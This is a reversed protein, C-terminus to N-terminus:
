RWLWVFFAENYSSIKENGIVTHLEGIEKLIFVEKGKSELLIALQNVREINYDILIFRSYNGKEINDALREPSNSRNVLILTQLTARNEM